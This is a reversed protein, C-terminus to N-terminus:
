TILYTLLCAFWCDVTTTKNSSYSAVISSVSEILFSHCALQEIDIAWILACNTCYFASVERAERWRSAARRHVWPAWNSKRNVDTVHHTTDDFKKRWFECNTCVAGTLPPPKGDAALLVSAVQNCRRRAARWRFRSLTLLVLRCSTMVAPQPRTWMPIRHLFINGCDAERYHM